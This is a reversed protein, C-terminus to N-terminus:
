FEFSCNFVSFCLYCIYRFSCQLFCFCNSIAARFIFSMCQCRMQQSQCPLLSTWINQPLLQPVSTRKTTHACGPSCYQRIPRLSENSLHLSICFRPCLSLCLFFPTPLYFELPVSHPIIKETELAAM